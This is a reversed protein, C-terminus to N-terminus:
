SQLIAPLKPDLTYPQELEELMCVVRFARTQLSGIVTYM